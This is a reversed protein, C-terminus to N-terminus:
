DKSFGIRMNAFYTRGEEPYGEQISYNVDMANNVGADFTINKTLGVSGKLNVLHYGALTQAGKSDVYRESNWEFSAMLCSREVPSWTVSSLYKQTPIDTFKLSPDVKNRKEAYSYNVTLGLNKALFLDKLIIYNVGLELGPLPKDGFFDSRGAIEAKGVNQMQTKTGTEPSIANVTVSQIANDIHSYFLNCQAGISSHKFDFKTGYGLDVNIAVEPELDANPYATGLKYSYRDKITPFRTKRSISFSVNQKDFVDYIAKGQLNWAGASSKAFPAISDHVFVSKKTTPNTVTHYKFYNDARESERHDFSVGGNVSLKNAFLKIGDEMGIDFTHDIYYRKTEDVFIYTLPNKSTDNSNLESHLDRKYHSAIRLDNYRLTSTGAEIGAGVTYDDYWSKFAYGKKFTKYTADDYSYLSNKFQDYYLPVKVYGLSGILSRSTLYVSQKDWYPWRWYRPTTKANSGAYIPGGKEGHQYNYSLAYEAGEAPTFGVKASVKADRHYSQNREGTSQYTTGSFDKSL